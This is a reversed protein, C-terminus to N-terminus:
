DIDIVMFDTSFKFKDVRVIVDEVVGRAVELSGNAFQLLYKTPKLEGFGLKRYISYSLVNCSAWWDCLASIFSFNELLCIITFRKLNPKKIPLQRSIEVTIMVKDNECWRSERQQNIEHVWLVVQFDRPNKKMDQSSHELILRMRLQRGCLTM